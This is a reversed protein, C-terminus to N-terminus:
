PVLDSHQFIIILPVSDLLETGTCVINWPAVEIMTRKSEALCWVSSGVAPRQLAMACSCLHGALHCRVHGGLLGQLLGPGDWSSDEGWLVAWHQPLLGGLAPAPAMSAYFGRAGCSAIDRCSTWLCSNGPDEHFDRCEPVRHNIKWPMKWLPIYCDESHVQGEKWM